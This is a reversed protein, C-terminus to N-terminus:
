IVNVHLYQVCSRGSYGIVYVKVWQFEFVISNIGGVSVAVVDPDSGRGDYVIETDSFRM